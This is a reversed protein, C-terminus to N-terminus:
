LFQGMDEMPMQEKAENMPPLAEFAWSDSAVAAFHRNWLWEASEKTGDMGCQEIRVLKEYDSPTPRELIETMGTRIILVDGARFTVNQFKAIAEIDAVTIRYGDLPHYTPDHHQEYWAKFDILVGRAVLGGVTHWHDLTPM